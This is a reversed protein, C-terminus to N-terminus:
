TDQSMDERFSSSRKSYSSNFIAVLAEVTRSDANSSDKVTAGETSGEVIM